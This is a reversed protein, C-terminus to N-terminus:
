GAAWLWDEEVLRTVNMYTEWLRLIRVNRKEMCYYVSWIQKCECCELRLLEWNAETDEKKCVRNTEEERNSLLFHLFKRSRYIQEHHWHDWIFLCGDRVFGSGKVGMYMTVHSCLHCTVYGKLMIYRANTERRSDRSIEIKLIYKLGESLTWNQAM